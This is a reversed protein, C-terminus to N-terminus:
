WQRYPQGNIGIGSSLSFVDYVDDGERPEDYSSAYARKGWSAAGSLGPAAFPDTPIRRLFYIRRKEPDRQDEVGEVLRELSPPYGTEGANRVIRSDDWARRYADIADRLQRLHYRLEQEKHRRATMEVVPLALSALIGLIALTAVLEILTFGRRGTRGARGASGM